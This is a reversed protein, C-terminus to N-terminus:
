IVACRGSWVTLPKRWRGTQLLGGALYIDKKKIPEVHIERM